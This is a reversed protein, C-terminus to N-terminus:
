VCGFKSLIALSSDNTNFHVFNKSVVETTKRRGMYSMQFKMTVLEIFDIFSFALKKGNKKNKGTVIKDINNKCRCFNPLYAKIWNNQQLFDFYCNHRSFVPYVLSIENATYLNQKEINWTLNDTTILINPCITEAPEEANWYIGLIKLTLVLFLRTLWLRRPKTVIMTDIDSQEGANFAAVSGTVAVMEIWPIQKLYKAISDARVILKEARERRQKYKEYDIKDVSYWGNVCIMKKGSVLNDLSDKFNKESVPRNSILYNWLQYHSMPCSFIQRYRLTDLIAHHLLTREPLNVPRGSNHTVKQKTERFKKPPKKRM